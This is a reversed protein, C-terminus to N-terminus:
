GEGCRHILNKSHLYALGRLSFLTVARIEPEQLHRELVEMGDSLAGARLWSLAHHSASCTCHM